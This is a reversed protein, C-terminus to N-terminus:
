WAFYNINDAATIVYSGTADAGFVLSGSSNVVYGGPLLSGSRSIQAVYGKVAGLSTDLTVASANIHVSTVAQSGTSVLSAAAWAMYSVEDLLTIVYSGTSDAGFILSGSSNVAYGNGLMSGSRSINAVYGKVAGIGTNLTIASANTHVATVVQSGTVISQNVQVQTIDVVNTAINATNTASASELSGLLDGMDVDYAAKMSNNLHTKNITSLKTM